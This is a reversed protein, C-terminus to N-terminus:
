AKEEGPRKDGSCVASAMWDKEDCKVCREGAADGEMGANRLAMAQVKFPLFHCGIRLDGKENISTLPYSGVREGAKGFVMNGAARCEVARKHVALAEDLPVRAGWSTQVEGKEKDIRVYPHSTHPCHNAEFALWKRLGDKAAKDRAKREAEQQQRAQELQAAVDPAQEIQRFGLKFAYTYSNAMTRWWEARGLDDRRMHAARRRAASNVAAEMSDVMVRYNAKHDDKTEAKVNDVDYVTVGHIARKVKSIHKATSVSYDQTTFLICEQGRADRAWRAIPFHYGWSFIADGDQGVEPSGYGSIHGCFMAFGKRHRNEKNAWAHAVEDHNAM